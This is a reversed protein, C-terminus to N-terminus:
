RRLLEPAAGAVPARRRQDHEAPTQDEATFQVFTIAASLQLHQLSQCALCDNNGFPSAANQREHDEPSNVTPRSQAVDNLHTFIHANANLLLALLLLTVSTRAFGVKKFGDPM